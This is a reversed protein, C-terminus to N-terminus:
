TNKTTKSGERLCAYAICEVTLAIGFGVAGFGLCQSKSVNRVHVHRLELGQFLVLRSGLLCGLIWKRVGSVLAQRSRERDEQDCVDSM